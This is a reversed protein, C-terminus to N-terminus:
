DKAAVEFCAAMYRFKFRSGWDYGIQVFRDRDCALAMEKEPKAVAL